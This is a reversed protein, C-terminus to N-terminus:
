EYNVTVTIATANTYTGSAQAAAVNLTGGVFVTQAGTGDLTGGTAWDPNSTWTDITMTNGGSTITASAPSIAISYAYGPTGGIDFSAARVTGTVAPLTVGGTETRVGAPDMVVTGPVTPSVAVNGFEMSVPNSISIPSVITASAAAVESVQAFTGATFAFLLTGFAFLKKMKKTNILKFM